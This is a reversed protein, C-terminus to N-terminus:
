PMSFGIFGYELQKSIHVPEFDVSLVDYVDQAFV